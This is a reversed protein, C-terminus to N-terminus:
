EKKSLISFWLNLNRLILSLKNSSLLESIKSLKNNLFIECNPDNLNCYLTTDDAYMIMKFVHSVSPLDNLYILFLLPGMISSQPVGLSIAKTKLKSGNFYVYQHRCLFLFYDRFLLNVVGCVGYHILKYLLISHNLTDFAKSFDIYVNTPVKGMGMQKTIYDVLQIAALETSHDTQFGFQKTPLLNNEFLYDFM